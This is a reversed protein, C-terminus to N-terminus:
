RKLHEYFGQVGKLVGFYTKDFNGYYYPDAANSM